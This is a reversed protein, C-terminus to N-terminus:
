RWASRRRCSGGYRGSIRTASCISNHSKLRSDGAVTASAQCRRKESEPPSVRGAGSDAARSSGASSATNMAERLLSWSGALATRDVQPSLEIRVSLCAVREFMWVPLEQSRGTTVGDVSCRFNAARGREIKQHIHISLGFWPHWPYLVERRETIHTNQQQTRYYHVCAGQARCPHVTGGVVASLRYSRMSGM